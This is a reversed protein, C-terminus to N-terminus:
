KPMLGLQELIQHTIEIRAKAKGFDETQICNSFYYVNDATELYGVYWGISAGKSDSWGTKARLTYSPSEKAIMIRKVIDTNRESFPLKGTRLRKLFGIQQEPSILLGGRLWFLDVGGSTDMNGYRARRLWYNMRKEGVRRAVEQYYWVVSNQFASKLTHDRNWAPNSRAVNDWEFKTSDDKLVGTELGILTNCIKFTSAPSFQQTFQQENYLLLLDRNEDYLAFSGSVGAAQFYKQFDDRIEKKQSFSISSFLILSLLIRAKAPRPIFLTHFFCIPSVRYHETM